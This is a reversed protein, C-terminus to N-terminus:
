LRFAKCRLPFVPDAFVPDRRCRIRANGRIPPGDTVPSGAPRRFAVLVYGFYVFILAIIPVCVLTLVENDHRQGTAEVSGTGPPLHPALLTVVLVMGVTSVVLWALAIRAGHGLRTM